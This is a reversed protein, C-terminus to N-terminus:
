IAPPVEQSHTTEQSVHLGLPVQLCPEAVAGGQAKHELRALGSIRVCSVPGVLALNRLLALVEQNGAAEAQPPTHPPQEPVM